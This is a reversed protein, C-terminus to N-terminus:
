ACMVDQDRGAVALVSRCKRTGARRLAPLDSRAVHVRLPHTAGRDRTPLLAHEHHCPVLNRLSPESGQAPIPDRILHEAIARDVQHNTWGRAFANIEPPVPGPIGLEHM